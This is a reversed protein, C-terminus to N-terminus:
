SCKDGVKPICIQMCKKSYIPSFFSSKSRSLMIHDQKKEQSKDSARVAETTSQQPGPPLSQSCRTHPLSALTQPYLPGQMLFYRWAKGGKFHYSQQFTIVFALWLWVKFVIVVIHYYCLIFDVQGFLTKCFFLVKPLFYKFIKTPHGRPDSYVLKMHTCGRLFGTLDSPRQTALLIAIYGSAM